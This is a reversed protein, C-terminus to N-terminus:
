SNTIGSIISGPPFSSDPFIISGPNLVSNCGVSVGDGVMAGMKRTGTDVRSGSFRLFVNGKDNRMNATIVGAGLNAGVGIISNGVYNFHPAKAGPLLISGKIETSHGVLAGECIWSGERIYASHRIEAGKGIYCPGEIRVFDGVNADQHIFIGNGDVSKELIQPILLGMEENIIEWPRDPNEWTPVESEEFDGLRPFLTNLLSM